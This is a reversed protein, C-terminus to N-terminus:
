KRNRGLKTISVRYPKTLFEPCIGSLSKVFRVCFDGVDRLHPNFCRQRCSLCPLSPYPPFFYAPHFPVPAPHIQSFIPLSFLQKAPYLCFARPSPFAEDSAFAPPQSLVHFSLHTYSSAAAQIYKAKSEGRANQIYGAFCSNERGLNERISQIAPTAALAQEITRIM